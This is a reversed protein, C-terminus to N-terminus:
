FHHVIGASVVDNIYRDYDATNYRDYGLVLSTHRGISPAVSAGCSLTKARGRYSIFPSGFTTVYLWPGAYHYAGTDVPGWGYPGREAAYNAVVDGDRWGGRVSIRWVEDLDWNLAASASAYSGSFVRNSADFAGTEAGLVLQLAENFRQSFGLRVRGDWTDRDSEQFSVGEAEVAASLVPVFPGLGLKHRWEARPGVAVSDLGHFTTWDSARASLGFSLLTSFDVSALWSADVSGDLHFGGLVGDGPTANTANSEWVASASTSFYPGDAAAAASGTLLVTGVCLWAPSSHRM